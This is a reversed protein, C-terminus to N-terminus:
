PSRPLASRRPGVRVRFFEYRLEGSKGTLAITPTQPAQAFTGRGEPLNRGLRLILGDGATAPILRYPGGAVEALREVPRYLLSRIRELGEVEAGEIRVGILDNPGPEPVAVTEGFSSEVTGAPLEPGCRDPVRALLQWFPSRDVPRFHCLTARAQAPPDWALFRRDIGETPREPDMGGHRLIRTPGSPDAIAEANREDLESTYASYNQFVPVPSWDLEFAWAVAAEWPDVSVRQGELGRQMREDLLYQFQVWGRIGEIRERQRGPSAVVRVDRVLSKVNEVPNLPETKGSAYISVAAFAALGAVSVAALGRRPPIAVWLLAVMAFFTALHSRDVRVVVYKYLVLVMVVVIAGAVIRGRRDPFRGLAAWALCAAVSLVAALPYWNSHGYAAMAENYGAVIQLSGSLFDPLDGLSQGSILWFGLFSVFVGGLYALLERPRARAGILGLLLLVFIVPGNSLKVLLEAGAFVGACLALILMSRGGPRREIILLATLLAIAVSVEIWTLQIVVLLTVLAAAWLPMRRRLAAVLVTCLGVFLVSTYLFALLTTEGPFFLWPYRLFGLPGYTFIIEPGFSLGDHAAMYLGSWWSADIGRAPYALEIRWGLIAILLGVLYSRPNWGDIRKLWRGITSDGKTM